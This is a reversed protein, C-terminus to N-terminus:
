ERFGDEPRLLSRHRLVGVTYRRWEDHYTARRSLQGRPHHLMENGGLYIGVHHAIPGERRFVLVDHERLARPPVWVFGLSGCHAAIPDGGDRWSYPGREPLLVEIGLIRAYYDRALDVCDQAGAVWERGELPAQWGTPEIRIWNGYAASVIVYPLAYRECFARDAESPDPREAHSHWVALIRGTDEARAYDRPHIVFSDEPEDSANEAVILREEGEVDVLFGCAELPARARAIAVM